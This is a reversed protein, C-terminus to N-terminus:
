PKWSTGFGDLALKWDLLDESIKRLQQIPMSIGNDTDVVHGSLGIPGHSGKGPVFQYRGVGEAPTAHSYIRTLYFCFLLGEKPQVRTALTHWEAHPDGAETYSRGRVVLEALDQDYHEVIIRMDGGKGILSGVWTGHLYAPGLLWQKLTLSRQALHHLIAALSDYIGRTALLAVGAAIAQVAIPQAQLWPVIWTLVVFMLAVTATTVYAHFKGEATM